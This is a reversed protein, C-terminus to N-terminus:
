NNDNSLLMIVEYSVISDFQRPYTTTFILAIDKCPERTIKPQLVLSLPWSCPQSYEFLSCRFQLFMM